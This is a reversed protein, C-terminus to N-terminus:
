IFFYGLSTEPYKIRFRMDAKNENIERVMSAGKIVSMNPSWDSPLVNPELNEKPPM